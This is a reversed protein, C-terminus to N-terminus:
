IRVKGFYIFIVESGLTMGFFSFPFPCAKGNRKGAHCSTYPDQAASSFGLFLCLHHHLVTVYARYAWPSGCRVLGM